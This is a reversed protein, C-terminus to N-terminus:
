TWGEFSQPAAFVSTQISLSLSMAFVAAVIKKLKM